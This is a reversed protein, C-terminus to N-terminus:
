GANRILHQQPLGGKGFKRRLHQRQQAATQEDCMVAAKVVGKQAVFATAVPEGKGRRPQAAHLQRALQIGFKKLMIQVADDLPMTQRHRAAMPCHAIHQRHRFIQLQRQALLTRRQQPLQHPLQRVRRHQGGVQRRANKLSDRRQGILMAHRNPAIRRIIHHRHVRVNLRIPFHRRHQPAAPARHRLRRAQFKHGRQARQVAHRHFAAHKVAVPKRRGVANHAM